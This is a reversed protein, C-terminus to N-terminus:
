GPRSSMSRKWNLSGVDPVVMVSGTLRPISRDWTRADGSSGRMPVMGRSKSASDFNEGADFSKIGIVRTGKATRTASAANVGLRTLHSRELDTIMRNMFQRHRESVATPQVANGAPAGDRECAPQRFLELSAGAAAVLGLQRTVTLKPTHPRPQASAPTWLLPSRDQHPNNTPSPRDSWPLASPPQQSTTQAEKSSALAADDSLMGSGTFALHSSGAATRPSHAPARSFLSPNNTYRGTTLRIAHPLPICLYVTIGDWM